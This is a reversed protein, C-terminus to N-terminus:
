GRSPNTADGSSAEALYADLLPDYGGLGFSVITELRQRSLLPGRIVLSLREYYDRLNGDQIVNEGREITEMYGAPISRKFHNFHKYNSPIRAILADTLGFEDVFHLQSGAYYPIYGLADVVHAKRGTERFTQVERALNEDFVFRDFGAYYTSMRHLSPSSRAFWVAKEDMIDNVGIWAGRQYPYRVPATLVSVPSMLLFISAIGASCGIPVLASVGRAALAPWVQESFFRVTLFLSIVFPTSFFRGMMHDGGVTTMYSLYLLLSVGVARYRAGHAIAASFLGLLIVVFTFPDTHILSAWYLYGHYLKEELTWEINLKAYATNPFLFGYYVLAFAFWLLIPTACVAALRLTRASRQTWLLYAAPVFYLLAHDVRDVVALACLLLSQVLYKESEHHDAGRTLFHALFLVAIAHSAPNELGSSSYDVFAKSTLAGVAFLPFAVVSSRFARLAGWWTLLNVLLTLAFSSVFINRAVWHVPILFLVWLPNTFVQVREDLNFRLGHGEVLNDVVRFSIYADDALWFNRWLLVFLATVLAFFLLARLNRPPTQDLTTAVDM